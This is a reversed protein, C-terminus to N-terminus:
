EFMEDVDVIKSKERNINLQYVAIAADETLVDQAIGEADYKMPSPQNTILDRLFADAGETVVGIRARDARLHRKIAGNVDALTL